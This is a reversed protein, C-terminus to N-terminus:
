FHFKNGKDLHDLEYKEIINVLKRQYQKSTAYGKKQLGAAWCKYDDGCSSILSAYRLDPNSLLLSHARWSLWATEYKVFYDRCSDDCKNICNRHKCNRYHCKIGFHNNSVRTLSSTGSASELIGQAMKVSAPIGFKQHEAIAVTQFRKVYNVVEDPAVLHKQEPIAALAIEETQDPPTASPWFAALLVLLGSGIVVLWWGDFTQKPTIDWTVTSGIPLKEM